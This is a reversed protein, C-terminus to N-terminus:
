RPRRAEAQNARPDDRPFPFDERRTQNRAELLSVRNKIEDVQQAGYQWQLSAESRPYMEARTKEQNAIVTELKTDVKSIWGSLWLAGIISPALLVTLAIGALRKGIIPQGDGDHIM